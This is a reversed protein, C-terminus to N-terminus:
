WVWNGTQLYLFLLHWGTKGYKLNQQGASLISRPPPRFTHSWARYKRSCHSAPFKSNYSTHCDDSKQPQYAGRSDQHRFAESSQAPSPRASEYASNSFDPVSIKSSGEFFIRYRIKEVDWWVNYFLRRVPKQHPMKWFVAGRASDMEESIGGGKWEREAKWNEPDARDSRDHPLGEYRLISGATWPLLMKGVAPIQGIFFPLILGIAFLM